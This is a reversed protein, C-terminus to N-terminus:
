GFLVLCLDLPYFQLPRSHIKRRERRIRMARVNDRSRASLFLVSYTRGLCGSICGEKREERGIHGGGKGEGLRCPGGYHARRTVDWVANRGRGHSGRRQLAGSGLWGDIGDKFERVASSEPANAETRLALAHRSLANELSTLRSRYREVFQDASM